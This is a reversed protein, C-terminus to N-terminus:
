AIQFEQAVAPLKQDPDSGPVTGFPQGHGVGHVHDVQVRDEEVADGREEFALVGALQLGQEPLQVPVVVVVLVLSQGEPDAHGRGLKGNEIQQALQQVLRDAVHQSTHLSGLDRDVAGAAVPAVRGLLLDFYRFCITASLPARGSM